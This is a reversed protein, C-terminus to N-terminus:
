VQEFESKAKEIVGEIEKAVETMVKLEKLFSEAEAIDWHSSVTSVQVKDYNVTVGVYSNLEGKKSYVSMKGFAERYEM